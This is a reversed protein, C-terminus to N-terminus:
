FKTAYTCKGVIQRTGSSAFRLRFGWNPFVPLFGSFQFVQTLRILSELQRTTVPTADVSHHHRRMKLYFEQLLLAAETSLEPKSVYKRAYALYKHLLAAPILPLDEGPGQKLRESSGFQHQIIFIKIYKKRIFWIRERPPWWRRSMM